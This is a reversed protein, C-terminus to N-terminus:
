NEPTKYENLIRNVMPTKNNRQKKQTEDLHFQFVLGCFALQWKFRKATM